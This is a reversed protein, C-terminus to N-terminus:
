GALQRLQALFEGTMDADDPQGPPALQVALVAIAKDDHRKARPLLRGGPDAHEEWDHCEHLFRALEHPGHRAIVPWDDLGLHRATTVIGDTAAVIWTVEGVPVTHTRAHRAASPDAQAIWYGCPQNRRQRQERQLDQLLQRHAQDYGAGAALRARYQARQPLDLAAMRDDTLVATCTDTGYFIFSDGLVLLDVAAQGARVLAVTSSPGPGGSMGMAASTVTIADGLIQPLPSGPDNGLREIIARGLQGAYPGAPVAGPEFATAGDLVAAANATTAIRDAGQASAQLLATTVRM